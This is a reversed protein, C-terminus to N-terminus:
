AANIIGQSDMFHLQELMSVINSLQNLTLRQLKADKPDSKRQYNITKKNIESYLDSNNKQGMRHFLLKGM